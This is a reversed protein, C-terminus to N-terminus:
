TLSRPPKFIGSPHGCAPTQYSTAPARASFRVPPCDAATPLLATVLGTCCICKPCEDSECGGGPTEEDVPGAATSCCDTNGATGACVVPPPAECPCTMGALLLATLMWLAMAGAAASHTTRRRVM